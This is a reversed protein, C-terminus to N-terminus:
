ILRTKSFASDTRKKIAGLSVPTNDIRAICIIKCKAIKTYYDGQVKGQKKLLDGLVDRHFDKFDKSEFIDFQLIM